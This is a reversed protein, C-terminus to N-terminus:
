TKSGIGGKSESTRRRERGSLQRLSQFRIKYKPHTLADIVASRIMRVNVSCQADGFKWGIDKSKAGKKIDHKEWTKGIACTLWGKRPKKKLVLECIKAECDELVSKENKKADLAHSPQSSIGAILITILALTKAIVFLGSSNSKHHVMLPGTVKTKKGLYPIFIRTTLQSTREKIAFVRAPQRKQSFVTPTSAPGKTLYSL